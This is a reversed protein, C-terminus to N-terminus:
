ETECASSASQKDHRGEPVRPCELPESVSSSTGSLDQLLQRGFLLLNFKTGHGLPLLFEVVSKEVFQLAGTISFTHIQPLHHHLIYQSWYLTHSGYNILLTKRCFTLQGIHHHLQSLHGVMREKMPLIVGCFFELGHAFEHELDSINEYSTKCTSWAWILNLDKWTWVSDTSNKCKRASKLYVSSM